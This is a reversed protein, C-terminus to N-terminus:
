GVGFWVVVGGGEVASSLGWRASKGRPTRCSLIECGFLVAYVVINIKGVHEVCGDGGGCRAGDGEKGGGRAPPKTSSETAASPRPSNLNCTATNDAQGDGNADGGDCTEGALLNRLGDGCTPLTCDRDCTATDDAQGDGNTDDDCLEGAAANILQNGCVPATCDLNCTATNDAQGDGDLDQDCAEGAPENM